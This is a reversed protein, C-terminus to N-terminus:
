TDYEFGDWPAYYCIFDGPEINLSQAGDEDRFAWGFKTGHAAELFPAVTIPELVYDGLEALRRDILHKAGAPAAQGPPIGSPRAVPDVRIEDFSGDASWLFVAVYTPGGPDFVEESLFFKRGDGATGAYPVHFDDPRITFRAPQGEPATRESGTSSM